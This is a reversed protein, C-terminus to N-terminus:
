HEAGSSGGHPKTKISLVDKLSPHARSKRNFYPYKKKERQERGRKM